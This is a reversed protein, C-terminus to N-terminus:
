VTAPPARASFGAATGPRHLPTRPPWAAAVGTRAPPPVAPGTVPGLLKGGDVSLCIPCHALHDSPSSPTDPADHGARDHGARDAHCIGSAFVDQLGGDLAALVRLSPPVHWGMVLAHALLVAVAVLAAVPNPGKTWGRTEM